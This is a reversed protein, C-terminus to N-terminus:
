APCCPISGQLRPNETWVGAVQSAGGTIKQKLREYGSEILEGFYVIQWWEQNDKRIAEYAEEITDYEGLYDRCGGRPYYHGGTFVIYM